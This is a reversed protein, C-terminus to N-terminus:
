LAARGINTDSVDGLGEIYERVRKRQDKTWFTWCLAWRTQRGQYLEKCRFEAVHPHEDCAAACQQEGDDESLRIGESHRNLTDAWRKNMREVQHPRDAFARLEDWLFKKLTKVTTARAVLSTFWLFQSSFVRSEQIMGLIFQLEGGECLLEHNQAELVRFPCVNVQTVSEHFPPNCMSLAFIERNGVVGAFFKGPDSQRRLHVSSSLGNIEVNERAVALSRESVDSGVFSWRYETCGLLPYVCNAGVGIDLVRVNKGRLPQAEQVSQRVEFSLSGRGHLALHVAGEQDVDLLLDAVHHVYNARSPICPVLFRDTSLPLKLQVGYFEMFLAKALEYLALTDTLDLSFGSTKKPILFQKLTSYKEGLAGYDVSCKAHRNRPHMKDNNGRQAGKFRKRKGSDNGDACATGKLLSIDSSDPREPSDLTARGRRRPQRGELSSCYSRYESDFCLTPDQPDECGGPESTTMGGDTELLDVQNSRDVVEHVSGQSDQRLAARGAPCEPLQASRHEGNDEGFNLQQIVKCDATRGDCAAGADGYEARSPTVGRELAM